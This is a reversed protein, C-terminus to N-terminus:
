LSMFGHQRKKGDRHPLIPKGWTSGADKSFAINIDYAESQPGGTAVLWNAALTGDSLVALSPFDAPSVFWNTGSAITKPASWGQQGRISFRLAYGKPSVPELWNLYVRGDTGTALNPGESGAAAPSQLDTVAPVPAASLAALMAFMSILAISKNM